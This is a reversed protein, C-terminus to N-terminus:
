AASARESRQAAAALLPALAEIDALAHVAIPADRGRVSLLHAPFASLDIGAQQAVEVSVVMTCGLVKCQQELRAAININDGVASLNPSSPPGMTGVIAEGGHLGIGIRLPEDLEGALRMSFLGHRRDAAIRIQRAALAAAYLGLVAWPAASVLAKVTDRGAQSAGDWGAFAAALRAPDQAFDLSEIGARAFGLLSVVGLAHSLLHLIVFVAMVLGSALRLRREYM